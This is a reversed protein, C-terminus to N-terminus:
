KKETLVYKELLERRVKQQQKVRKRHDYRAALITVTGFISYLGFMWWNAMHFSWIATGLQQWWGTRYAIVTMAAGLFMGFVLVIFMYKILRWIPAEYTSPYTRSMNHDAGTIEM